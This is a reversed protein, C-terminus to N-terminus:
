FDDLNREDVREAEGGAVRLILWPEEPQDLYCLVEARLAEHAARACESVAGWPLDPANFWVSTYPRNRVQETIQVPVTDGEYQGEYTVIPADQVKELGGLVGRLWDAADEETLGRVYIETTDHAM